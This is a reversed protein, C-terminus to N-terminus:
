DDDKSKIVMYTCVAFTIIYAYLMPFDYVKCFAGSSIGTLMILILREIKM